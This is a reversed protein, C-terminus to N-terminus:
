NPIFVVVNHRLLLFFFRVMDTYINVTLSHTCLASQVCHLTGFALDLDFVVVM